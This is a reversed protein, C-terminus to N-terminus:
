SSLSSRAIDDPNTPQYDRIVHNQRTTTRKSRWFPFVLLGTETVREWGEPTRNELIGRQWFTGRWYERLRASDSLAFAVIEYLDTEEIVHDHTGHEGFTVVWGDHEEAVGVSFGNEESPDIVFVRNPHEGGVRFSLNRANSREVLNDIVSPTVTM